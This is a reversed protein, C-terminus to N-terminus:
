LIKKHTNFRFSAETLDMGNGANNGNKDKVFFFIDGACM